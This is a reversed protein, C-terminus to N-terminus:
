IYSRNCLKDMHYVSATHAIIAGQERGETKIYNELIEYLAAYTKGNSRKGIIINYTANYELIRRLSYYTKKAM